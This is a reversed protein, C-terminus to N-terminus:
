VNKLHFVLCVSNKMIIHETATIASLPLVKARMSLENSAVSSAFKRLSGSIDTFRLM